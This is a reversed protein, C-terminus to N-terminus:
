ARSPRRRWDGARLQAALAARQRRTLRASNVREDTAIGARGLLVWVYRNGVGPVSRLLKALRISSDGREIAIAALGPAGGGGADRLGACLAAHALRIENAQALSTQQQTTM